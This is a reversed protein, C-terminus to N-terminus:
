QGLFRSLEYMERNGVNHCGAEDDLFMGLEDNSDEQMGMYLDEIFPRYLDLFAEDSLDVYSDKQDHGNNYFVEYVYKNEIIHAHVDSNDDIM